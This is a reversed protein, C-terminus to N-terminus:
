RSAEENQKNFEGRRRVGSREARPRARSGRRGGGARRASPRGGGDEQEPQVQPQRAAHRGRPWGRRRGAGQLVHRPAAPGRRRRRAGAQRRPLGARSRQRPSRAATHKRCKRRTPVKIIPSIAVASTKADGGGGGIGPAAPTKPAHTGSAKDPRFPHTAVAYYTSSTPGLNCSMFTNEALSRLNRNVLNSPSHCVVETSSGRFRKFWEWLSFLRCDCAWTNNNLRLYQLGSLDGMAHGSLETLENNFLYLTSLASLGRFIRRRIARLRNHHLLLKDLSHLGRFVNDSLSLLKNGHLFLHTLNSLEGFLDDQLHMLENQQLYLHQLGRLGAFVRDPLEQLGCRYLHLTHLNVLGLFTDADLWQLYRNNGLDLEDLRSFAAFAGPQIITINNSFLSLAVTDPSLANERPVATIRNNQLLVRHSNRPLGSPIRVFGLSQCNATVPLMYCSCNKPCDSTSAPSLWLLLLCVFGLGATSSGSGSVDLGLIANVRLRSM